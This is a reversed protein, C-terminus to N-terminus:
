DFVDAAPIRLRKYVWDLPIRMGAAALKTLSDTYARLDAAEGIDFELRPLRLPDAGAVNIVCWPRILQSNLTRAVQRADANRIDLRVENHIAGLAQTGHQGEGSSLTQGLIVKSQMAEMRDWMATYPGESGKAAEQFEMVMGQPIIGAANHGIATVAQLLTRKEDESAGAPYKGLRLPLGFIELFEALDRVAYNKFLYPWALVRALSNRTLYGSRSRHVHALWGFPLLPEAAVM